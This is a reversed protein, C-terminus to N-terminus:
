PNHQSAFSKIQSFADAYTASGWFGHGSGPYEVYQVAVGEIMLKNRLKKSQRAPDVLVDDSGHLIITPCAASNTAYNIPSCQFYLGPDADPTAGVIEALAAQPSLGPHDYLDKIDTPGYFDVVLKIKVPTSYKYAYLLALHGGASTGMLTFNDSIGYETRKSYIFEIGAKTDLEQTPFKNGGVGYLRYNINFIAYGPLYKKLSDIFLLFEAKDGTAWAGGHLLVISKTSAQSRGSPLYVDMVQLADSGYPVNAYNIAKVENNNTTSEKKCSLVSATICFLLVLKKTLM